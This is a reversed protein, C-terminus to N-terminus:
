NNDSDQEEGTGQQGVPRPQMPPPAAIIISHLQYNIFYKQRTAQVGKEDIEAQHKSPM